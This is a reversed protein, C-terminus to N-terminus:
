ALYVEVVQCRGVQYRELLQDAPPDILVVRRVEPQYLAAYIAGRTIPRGLRSTDSIYANVAEIAATRVLEPDPGPDIHLTAKIEYDVVAAGQVIVTETLPRVDEANLAATVASLLADDPTGGNEASLVTVVVAGSAPSYADVDVVHAHASLAHYVYSGRSGATTIGELAMQTRQRLREDSEDDQRETAVLAALNDLDDGTATALMVAKAAENIRQYLLMAQYATAEGDIVLPDSELALVDALSPDLEIVRAKWAELLSEYDVDEVVAAAPLQSLDVESFAM